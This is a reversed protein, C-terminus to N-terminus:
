TELFSSRAMGVEWSALSEWSFVFEVSSSFCSGVMDGVESSGGFLFCAKWQRLKQIHKEMEKPWIAKPYGAEIILM